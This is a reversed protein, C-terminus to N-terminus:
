RFKTLQEAFYKQGPLYRMLPLALAYMVVLEGFAVQLGYVLFPVPNQWPPLDTLAYCLVAGVIVGNWLVPMFCALLETRLTQPRKGIAAVCLSAFLTALSGFVVDLLGAASMINAIACGAFLGWATYPLFFPVIGLVESVRFQLPGYSIPQLLMTLAAYLAGVVAAAIIRRSNSKM